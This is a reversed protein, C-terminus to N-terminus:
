TKQRIICFIYFFYGEIWLLLSPLPTLFFDVWHQFIIKKKKEEKIRWTIYKKWLRKFLVNHLFSTHIAKFLICCSSFFPPTASYSPFIRLPKWIVDKLLKREIQKKVENRFLIYIHFPIRYTHINEWCVYLFCICEYVSMGVCVCM